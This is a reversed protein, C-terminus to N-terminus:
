PRARRKLSIPAPRPRAALYVRFLSRALLGAAALLSIELGTTAITM